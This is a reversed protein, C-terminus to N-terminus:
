LTSSSFTRVLSPDRPRQSQLEHALWVGIQKTAKRNSHPGLCVPTVEHPCLKKQSVTQPDRGNHDPLWLPLLQLCSTVNSGHELRLSSHVATGLESEGKYGLGPSLVAWPPLM